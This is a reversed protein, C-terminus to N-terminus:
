RMGGFIPWNLFIKLFLFFLSFLHVHSQFNNKTKTKQKQKKGEEENIHRAHSVNRVTLHVCLAMQQM